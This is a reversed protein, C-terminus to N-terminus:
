AHLRKQVRYRHLPVKGHCLMTAVPGPIGAPREKPHNYLRRANKGKIKYIIENSAVYYTHSNQQTVVYTNKDKFFARVFRLEKAPPILTCDWIRVYGYDTLKMSSCPLSLTVTPICTKESTWCVSLIM